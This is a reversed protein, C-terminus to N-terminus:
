SGSPRTLGTLRGPLRGHVQDDLRVAAGASVRAHGAVARQDPVPRGAPARRAPRASRTALLLTASYEPRSAPSRAAASISGARLHPHAHVGLEDDLLHRTPPLHLVLVHASQGALDAFDTARDLRPLFTSSRTPGAPASCAASRSDLSAMSPCETGRGGHGRVLHRPTRARPRAPRERRGASWRSRRSSRTWAGDVSRRRRALRPPTRGSTPGSLRTMEGLRQGLLGPLGDGLSMPVSTSTEASQVASGPLAPALRPRPSSLPMRGIATSRPSRHDDHGRSAADDGDQRLDEPEAGLPEPAERRCGAVQAADLRPRVARRRDSERIPRVMEGLPCQAINATM